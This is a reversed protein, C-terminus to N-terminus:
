YEKNSNSQLIFNSFVDCLDKSNLCQIYKMTLFDCISKEKPVDNLHTDISTIKINDFNNPQKKVLSNM